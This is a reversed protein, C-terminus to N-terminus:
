VINLDDKELQEIARELYWKAKMLDEIRNDKFQSRSVYKVVNGLHYGLGKAEIFDITEVGGATYHHPSNIMDDDQSESISPILDDKEQEEVVEDVKESDETWEKLTQKKINYVYSQSVNLRNAIDGPRKGKLLLDKIKQATTKM